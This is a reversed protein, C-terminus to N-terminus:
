MKAKNGQPTPAPHPSLKGFGFPYVHTGSHSLSQCQLQGLFVPSQQLRHAGVGWQPPAEAPGISNRPRSGGKLPEQVLPSCPVPLCFQCLILKVEVLIAKQTTRHM